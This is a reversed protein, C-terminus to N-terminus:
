DMYSGSSSSRVTFSGSDECITAGDLGVTVKVRYSDGSGFCNDWDEGAEVSISLNERLYEKLAELMGADM